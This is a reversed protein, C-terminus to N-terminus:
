GVVLFFILVLLLNLQAVNSVTLKEPHRSVLAKVDKLLSDSCCKSIM